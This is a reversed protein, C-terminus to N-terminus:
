TPKRLHASRGRRPREAGNKNQDACIVNAGLAALAEASAKGLGSAAGLVLATKGDLRFMARHSALRQEISQAAPSM